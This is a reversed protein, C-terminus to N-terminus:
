RLVVNRASGSFIINGGAVRATTVASGFGLKPLAVHLHLARTAAATVSSPLVGGLAHIDSLTGGLGASTVDIHVTGSLTVSGFGPLSVPAEAILDGNKSSLKLNPVGAVRALQLLPLTVAVAVRDVPVTDVRTRVASLPIHAGHLQVDVRAGVMGAIPEGLGTLEIDDYKGDVAQTLFPIGHIHVSPRGAFPRQDALKTAVRDQAVAVAIRDAAVLIGGLVVALVVLVIPWRRGRRTRRSSYNGSVRKGPARVGGSHGAHAAVAGGRGSAAAAGRRSRRRHAPSSYVVLSAAVGVLASVAAIGACYLIAQATTFQPQNRLLYAGIAAGAVTGLVVGSLGRAVDPDFRPRSWVLDVLLGLAVAVGGALTTAAVMHGGGAEHRLQVLAPLAVVAAIMLAIGSLSEVVRSRIVGRILQHAFMVPVALGLIGLMPSLASHPWHMVAFDTAAATGAGIIIAGLRGPMAGAAPLTDDQVPHAVPPTPGMEVEGDAGDFSEGPVVAVAAGFAWALLFAAQIVAVVVLLAVPRAASYALAAGALLAILAGRAASMEAGFRQRRAPVAVTRGSDTPQPAPTIPLNRERASAADVANDTTPAPETM